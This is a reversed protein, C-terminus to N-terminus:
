ASDGGTASEVALRALKRVGVELEAIREKQRAIEAKAEALEIGRSEALTMFSQASEATRKISWSAEALEAELADVHGILAKLSPTGIAACGSIEALREPSLRKSAPATM